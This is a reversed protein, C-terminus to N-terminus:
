AGVMGDGAANAKFDLAEGQDLLEVDTSGDPWTDTGACRLTVIFDSSDTKTVTGPRGPTAASFLTVIIDGTTADAEITGDALAFTTDITTERIGNVWGKQIGTDILDGDSDLGAIDNAVAGAVKNARESNDFDQELRWRQIERPDDTRPVRKKREVAM